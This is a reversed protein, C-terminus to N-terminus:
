TLGYVTLRSGAVLNGSGATISVQTIAATNRWKGTTSAIVDNTATAEAWGGTGSLMKHATTQTYAPVWIMWSAFTNAGVSSGPVPPDINTGGAATAGAPAAGATSSMQARDYNAGSDGNFRLQVTSTVVAQTTRALIVILLTSATQAIGNAGSDISAAAGSLTSDFLQATAGASAPTILPM